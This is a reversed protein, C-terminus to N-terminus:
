PKLPRAPQPDVTPLAPVEIHPNRGSHYASEIIPELEVLVTRNGPLVLHALFESELTAVGAAAAGLKADIALALAYWFRRTARELDKARAESIPGEASDAWVKLTGDPRPPSVVIRFQRAGGRFAIATRTGQHSFLVDTAGYDTLAREIHERSARSSISGGRLYPSTM